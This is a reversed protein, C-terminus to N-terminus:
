AEIDLTLGAPSPARGSLARATYTQPVASVYTFNMGGFGQPLMEMDTMELKESKQFMMALLALREMTSVSDDGKKGLAMMALFTMGEKSFAPSSKTATITRVSLAPQYYGGYGGIPTIAESM